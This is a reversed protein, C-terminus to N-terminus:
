IKQTIGRVERSYGGGKDRSLKMAKREASDENRAPVEYTEIGDKHDYGNFSEHSLEIKVTYTKM